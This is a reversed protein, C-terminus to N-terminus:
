RIIEFVIFKLILTILKRNVDSIPVFNTFIEPIVSFLPQFTVSIVIMLDNVTGFSALRLFRSVCLFATRHLLFTKLDNGSILHMKLARKM